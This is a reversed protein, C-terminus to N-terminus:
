LGRRDLFRSLPGPLEAPRDGFDVVVVSGGAVDHLARHRTGIV